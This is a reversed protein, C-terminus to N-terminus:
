KARASLKMVNAGARLQVCYNAWKVMLARRQEVFKTRNYARGLADPVAHALQAEIVEPDIGLREVAITRATARFGHGTIEQPGFGMRRLASLVGNDSLPREATLPNPFVYRGKGTLPQLEKLIAVAQPALPVLHAIGAAKAKKRGKMREAPITWMAHKLDFESWEAKRLEGPRLFVLPALAVAARVVPTGQYADIALLVERFKAPDTVAARHKAAPLVIAGKLDRTPDSECHGQQVGYRFVAGAIKVARYATEGAGRAEIRRAEKLVEPATISALPRAGVFPFLDKELLALVKGAHGESWSQLMYAHWERGTHEFTGPGPLGAAAYRAAEAKSAKEAKEIKRQESPTIGAAHGERKDDRRQRALTLPVEPYTGLSVMGEKGGDWYRLRWWGSGNPRAELYLGAGDSVRKPKGSERATKLASKITKDSLTNIGAM